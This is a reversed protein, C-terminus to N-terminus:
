SNMLMLDRFKMADQLNSNEFEKIDGGASFAKGAGTLVVSRINQDAKLEQLAVLIEQATKNSIPNLAKPRNLVITGIAEEKKLLITEFDMKEDEGQGGWFVAWRM